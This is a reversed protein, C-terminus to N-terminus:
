RALPHLVPQPHSIPCLTLTSLSCPPASPLFSLAAPTQSRGRTDPRTGVFQIRDAHTGSLTLVRGDKWMRARARASERVGRVRGSLLARITPPPKLMLASSPLQKYDTAQLRIRDIQKIDIEPAIPEGSTSEDSDKCRLLLYRALPVSFYM